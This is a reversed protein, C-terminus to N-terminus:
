SLTISFILHLDKGKGKRFKFVNLLLTYCGSPAVAFAVVVDSTLPDNDLEQLGAMSECVGFEPVEPNSVNGMWVYVDQSQTCLSCIFIQMEPPVYTKLQHVHEEVSWPYDTEPESGQIKRIDNDLFDVITRPIAGTSNIM